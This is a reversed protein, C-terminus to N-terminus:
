PADTPTLQGVVHRRRIGSARPPRGLRGLDPSPTGRAARLGQGDRGLPHQVCGPEHGAHADEVCGGAGAILRVQRCLADASVARQQGGLDRGAHEVYGSLCRAIGAQAIDLRV